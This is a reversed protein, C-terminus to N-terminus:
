IKMVDTEKETVIKDVEKNMEDVLKNLEEEASYRDDETVTNNKMGNQVKEWAERRINRLAVKAEEGYKKLLTAIERRREETMPPLVLRIAQGDNIPALGVDSNRIATEIPGLANRDWPKIVIQNAEPTSISAMERLATNAGYYSAYVGDLISPNARGTRVKTLDNMLSEVAKEMKPKTEKLIQDIM